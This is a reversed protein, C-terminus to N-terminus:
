KMGPRRNIPAPTPTMSVDETLTTWDLKGSFSWPSIDPKDRLMEFRPDESPVAITPETKTDDTAGSFLVKPRASIVTTTIANIPRIAAISRGELCVEGCDQPDPAMKIIRPHTTMFLFKATKVMEPRTRFGSRM